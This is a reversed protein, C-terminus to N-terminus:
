RLSGTASMHSAGLFISLLSSQKVSRQMFALILSRSAAALKELHYMGIEDRYDEGVSM